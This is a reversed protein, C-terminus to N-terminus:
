FLKDAGATLVVVAISAIIIGGLVYPWSKKVPIGLVFAALAGTWAGTGPLPVGIFIMLGILGWKAYDGEFKKQARALLKIWKGAFFGSTKEIWNHFSGALFLIGLAPLFNGLVSWFLVEWWPLHYALIGVPISGRLELIPTMAIFFTALEPPFQSFFDVISQMM